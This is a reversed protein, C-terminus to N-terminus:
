AYLCCCTPVPWAPHSGAQGLSCRGAARGRLGRGTSYVHPARVALSVASSGTNHLEVWDPSAGDEDKITAKNDTM